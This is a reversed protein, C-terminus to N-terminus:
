SFFMIIMLVHKQAPDVHNTAVTYGFWTEFPRTLSIPKFNLDIFVPFYYTSVITCKSFKIFKFQEARRLRALVGPSCNLKM